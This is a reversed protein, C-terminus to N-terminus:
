DSEERQFSISSICSIGDHVFKVNPEEYADKGEEGEGSQALRSNKFEHWCVYNENEYQRTRITLNEVDSVMFPPVEAATGPAAVECTSDAHTLRAKSYNNEDLVLRVSCSGHSKTPYTMNVETIYQDPYEREIVVGVECFIDDPFRSNTCFVARESPLRFLSRPYVWSNSSPLPGHHVGFDLHIVAPQHTLTKPSVVGLLVLAAVVVVSWWCRRASM